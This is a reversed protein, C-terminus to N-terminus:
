GGGPGRGGQGPVGPSPDAQRGRDQVGHGRRVRRDPRVRGGADGGGRPATEAATRRDHHGRRGVRRGPGGGVGARGGRDQTSGDGDRGGDYRVEGESGDTVGVPARGTGVTPVAGVAGSLWR